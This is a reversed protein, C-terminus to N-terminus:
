IYTLNDFCGNCLVDGLIESMARQFASPANKLGFPTRTFCFTGRSTIFTSFRQSEESLAQQWYGASLDLVAFYKNGRLKFILDRLNPLPWTESVTISNLLRFDICFRIQGDKKPVLHIQSHFDNSIRKIIGLRLMRNIELHIAEEEEFSFRRPPARLGAPIVADEKLQITLERLSSATAGVEMKFLDKYRELLYRVEKISRDMLKQFESEDEAEFLPIEVESLDRNNILLMQEWRAESAVYLLDTVDEITLVDLGFIVDAACGALVRLEVSYKKEVSPIDVTAYAIRNSKGMGSDGFILEIEEAEMIELGLRLALEENIFSYLPSGTDVVVKVAKGCIFGIVSNGNIAFM